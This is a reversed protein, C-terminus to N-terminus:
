DRASSAKAGFLIAIGYRRQARTCPLEGHGAQAQHLQLEAEVGQKQVLVVGHTGEAEQQEPAAGLGLGWVRIRLRGGRCMVVLACGHYFRRNCGCHGRWLDGMSREGEGAMCLAASWTFEQAAHNLLTHLSAAATV